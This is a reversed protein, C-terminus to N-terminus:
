FVVEVKSFNASRMQIEWTVKGKVFNVYQIWILLLLNILEIYHKFLCCWVYPNEFVSTYSTQFMKFLKAWQPKFIKIDKIFSINLSHDKFHFPFCFASNRQSFNKISIIKFHRLSNKGSILKRKVNVTELLFIWKKIIQLIQTKKLPLLANSRLRQHCIKHNEKKFISRCKLYFIVIM